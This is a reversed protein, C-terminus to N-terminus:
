RTSAWSDPGPGCTLPARPGLGGQMSAPKAWLPRVALAKVGPLHSLPGPWSLSKGLAVCSPPHWLFGLAEEHGEELFVEWIGGPCAERM